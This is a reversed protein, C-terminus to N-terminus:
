YRSVRSYIGGTSQFDYAEREPETAAFQLMKKENAWGGPRYAETETWGANAGDDDLVYPLGLINDCDCFDTVLLLPKPNPDELLLRRIESFSIAQLKDKTWYCLGEESLATHGFFIVVTPLERARQLVERILQGEAKNECTEILCDPICNAWRMFRERDLKISALQMLGPENEHPCDETLPWPVNKYINGLIHVVVSIPPLSTGYLSSWLRGHM